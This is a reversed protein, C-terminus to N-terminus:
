GRQPIGGHLVQGMSPDGWQSTKTGWNPRGKYSAKTEDGKHMAKTQRGKEGKRQREGKTQSLREDGKPQGM